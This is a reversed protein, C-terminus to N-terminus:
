MRRRRRWPFRNCCHQLHRHLVNCTRTTRHIWFMIWVVGCIRFIARVPIYHEWPTLFEYYWEEWQTSEVKLVVSNSYLKWWCGNWSNSVGDIDLVGRAGIMWDAGRRKQVLGLLGKRRLEDKSAEVDLPSLTIAANLKAYNAQKSMNAVSVRQSDLGGTAGGRFRVEFVKSKWPNARSLAAVDHNPLVRANTKVRSRDGRHKYGDSALFYVDPITLVDSSGKEGEFALLPIGFSRLRLITHRWM